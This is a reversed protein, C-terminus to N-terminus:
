IMIIRVNFFDPRFFMSFVTLIMYIGVVVQTITFWPVTQYGVKNAIRHAFQDM